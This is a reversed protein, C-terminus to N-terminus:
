IVWKDLEGKEKDQEDQKITAQDTNEVKRNNEIFKKIFEGTQKEVQETVRQNIYNNIQDMSYVQERKPQESTVEQVDQKIEKNEM